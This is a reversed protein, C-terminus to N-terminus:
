MSTANSFGQTGSTIFGGMSQLPATMAYMTPYVTDVRNNMYGFFNMMGGGIDNLTKAVDNFAGDASKAASYGSTENSNGFNLMEIRRNWYDVWLQNSYVEESRYANNLLDTNLGATYQDADLSPDACISYQKYLKDVTDNYLSKAGNALASTYKRAGDYDVPHGPWKDETHKLESLLPKELHDSFKGFFRERKQKSIKLYRNAIDERQNLIHTNLMTYALSLLMQAKVWWRTYDHEGKENYEPAAWMCMRRATMEVAQSIRNFVNRTDINRTLELQDAANNSAIGVVAVPLTM